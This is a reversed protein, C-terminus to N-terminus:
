SASRCNQLPQQRQGAALTNVSISVLRDDVETSDRPTGPLVPLHPLEVEQALKNTECVKDSVHAHLRM